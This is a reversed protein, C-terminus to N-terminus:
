VQTYNKELYYGNYNTSHYKYLANGTEMNKTVRTELIYVEPAEQHQYQSQQSQEFINRRKLKSRQHNQWTYSHEPKNNHATRLWNNYVLQQIFPTKECPIHSM